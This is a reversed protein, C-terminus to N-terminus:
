KRPHTNEIQRQIYEQNLWFCKKTVHKGDPTEYADLKNKAHPRIHSVHSWKAGPLKEAQGHNIRRITESWVRQVEELDYTPMSWFFARELTREEEKKCKDACRFVVFFFRSECIKQIQARNEGDEEDGDWVENIIETYKFTPFSMHEKPKGDSRLQITKMIVGASEFEEIKSKKVGMMERALIAFKAKTNLKYKIKLASEIESVTKGIFPKFREEVQQEFTKTEDLEQSKIIRESDEYTGLERRLLQTMYSSKYSYARPKAPTDGIQKRRNEGTASKTCAGLYLTDGESLEHALGDKLKQNIKNWDDRIIRQDEIPLNKFEYLKALLFSVDGILKNDEHLYSLLMMKENKKYYSSSHFDRKSEAIYDIMGLVLREKASYDGSQLKKIPTTKLEVRAQLFDPTGDSEPTIGFYYKEVINGLSGRTKGSVSKDLENQPIELEGDIGRLNRGVLRKGYLEISYPDLQDYKVTM